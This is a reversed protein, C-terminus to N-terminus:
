LHNLHNLLKWFLCELNTLGCEIRIRTVLVRAALIRAALILAALVRSRRFLRCQTPLLRPDTHESLHTAGRVHQGVTVAAIRRWMTSLDGAVMSSVPPNMTVQELLGMTM